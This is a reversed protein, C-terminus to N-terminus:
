LPLSKLLITEVTVGPGIGIVLGWEKGEGGTTTFGSQHADNRIRDLVFYVTAGSINGVQDLTQRSYKLTEPSLRLEKEVKNMIDAGGPHMAWFMEDVSAVGALEKAEQLAVELNKAVATGLNRGLHFYMGYEKPAATIYDLTDPVVTTGAYQIEYIPKESAVPDAGVVLAGAGDGFLGHGVLGDLYEESPGRFFVATCDVCVVLVRAGKNNEALDKATRLATGGAHCGIYYMMVRRVKSADLGAGNAILLDLGPMNVLSTSSVVMHTIDDKSGGWDAIATEAAEVALKPVWEMLIEHRVSISNDKHTTLEPHEAVLEKTVVMHRKTIQMKSSIRKFKDLLETKHNCNTMSFYYDPYTSTEHVFPPVATGIALVNAPGESAARIRRAGAQRGAASM